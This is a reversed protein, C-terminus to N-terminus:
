SPASRRDPELSTIWDAFASMAATPERSKLKTLWYSGLSISAQFPRRISGKSLQRSFMLAPALAVGAGQEAAEMMALSSDFVIASAFNAPAEMGAAEFWRSWEDQRYSRLLTLAGLDQPAHLTAALEPTCLPTLPAEFLETAHLGNWAGNGFRISFDLGEAALDVRNNNTSLRLEVFPHTRRFDELRPLLWGVAFTGVAGVVLPERLKGSGVRELSRALRDFADGVIPLLAEGEATIKLGRPLRRFLQVGLRQELSRVQQSVAAQTVALEIGARTFSLHRASAEFARLANLPLYPRVM